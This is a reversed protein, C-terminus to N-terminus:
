FYDGWGGQHSCLVLVYFDVVDSGWSVRSIIDVGGVLDVLIVAASSRTAAAGM